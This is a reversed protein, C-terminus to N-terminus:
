KVLFIVKPKIDTLWTKKMFKKILNLNERVCHGGVKKTFCPTLVPRIFRKNDCSSYLENYNRTWETYVDEYDAGYINCIRNVETAFAIDWAYRTTSLIKALETDEPGKFHFTSLDMDCGLIEEVLDSTKGNHPLGGIFKDSNAISEFLDPHKGVIPSHVIKIKKNFKEYIERTTGVPVTSHIITIQPNYMEIYGEVSKNFQKKNIFPISIHLGRVITGEKIEDISGDIDVRIVSKQLDEYCKYLATGIQGESGVIMDCIMDCENKKM